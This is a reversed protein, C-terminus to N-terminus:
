EKAEESIMDKLLNVVYGWSMKSEDGAKTRKNLTAWKEPVKIHEVITHWQKTM